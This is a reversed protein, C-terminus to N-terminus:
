KSPPTDALVTETMIEHFRAPQQFLPRHGSTELVILQKSPAQIREFWDNALM